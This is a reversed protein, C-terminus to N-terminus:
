NARKLYVGEFSCNNGHHSCITVEKIDVKREMLLFSFQMKCDDSNYFGTYYNENYDLIPVVGESEGKCEGQSVSVTFYLDNGYQTLSLVASFGKTTSEHDYIGYLPRLDYNTEPKAYVDESEITQAETVTDIQIDTNDQQPKSQCGFFLLIILLM